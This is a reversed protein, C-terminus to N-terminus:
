AKIANWAFRSCAFFAEPLHRQLAWHSVQAQDLM